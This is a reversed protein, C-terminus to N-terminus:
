SMHNSLTIGQRFEEIYRNTDSVITKATKCKGEHKLLNQNNWISWALIVFVNWDFNSAEERLKWYVEIFDRQTNNWIPFKIGLEKWVKSAMRCDWLAHASSEKGGCAACRDEVTVKRRALCHNTPLIDKCARWLFHQIKNPCELKWISKWLNTIKSADSCDGGTMTGKKENLVSIAVGYASKM